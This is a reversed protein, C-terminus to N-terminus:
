LAIDALQRHVAARRLAADTVGDVRIRPGTCPLLHRIPHCRDTELDATPLRKPRRFPVSARESTLHEHGGDRRPLQGLQYHGIMLLRHARERLSDLQVIRTAYDLVRAVDREQSAYECLYTLATLRREAYQSRPATTWEAYLADELYDGRYLALAAQLASAAKGRAGAASFAMAAAFHDDFEDCDAIM